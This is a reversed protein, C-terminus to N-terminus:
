LCKHSESSIWRDDKIRLQHDCCPQLIFNFHSLVLNYWRPPARTTSSYIACPAPQYHCHYSHLNTPPIPTSSTNRHLESILGILTALPLPPVSCHHPLWWWLNWWLRGKITRWFSCSWAHVMVDLSWVGRVVGCCTWLKAWCSSHSWLNKSLGTHWLVGCWTQVCLSVVTYWVMCNLSHVCHTTHYPNM